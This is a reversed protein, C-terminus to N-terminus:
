NSYMIILISCSFSMKSTYNSKHLGKINESFIFNLQTLNGTPIIGWCIEM